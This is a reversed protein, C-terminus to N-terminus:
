TLLYFYHLYWLKPLSSRLLEYMCKVTLSALPLDKKLFIIVFYHFNSKLPLLNLSFNIKLILKGKRM